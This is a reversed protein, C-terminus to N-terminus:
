RRCWYDIMSPTLLLILYSPKWYAYFFCSSVLLLLQRLHRTRAAWLGLLVVAFFEVFVWSTFVM